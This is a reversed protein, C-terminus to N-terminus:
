GRRTPGRSKEEWPRRHRLSIRTRASASARTMTRIRVRPSHRRRRANASPNVSQSSPEQSKLRTAPILILAFSLAAFVASRSNQTM